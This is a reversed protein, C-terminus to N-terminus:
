RVREIGNTKREGIGCPPRTTGVPLENIIADEQIRNTATPCFTAILITDAERLEYNWLGSIRQNKIENMALPAV